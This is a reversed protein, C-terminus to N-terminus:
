GDYYPKFLVLVTKTNQIESASPVLGIAVFEVKSEPANNSTISLSLLPSRGLDPVPVGAPLLTGGQHTLKFSSDTM